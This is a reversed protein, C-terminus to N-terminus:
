QGGRDCATMGEVQGHMRESAAAARSASVLTLIDKADRSDIACKALIERDPLNQYTLACQAKRALIEALALQKEQTCATTGVSVVLVLGLLASPGAPPPPPLMEKLIKAVKVLDPGLAAVIRLGDALPKSIKAIAAYEEPTRPKAAITFLASVLLFVVAQHASAWALITSM